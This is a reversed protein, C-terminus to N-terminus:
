YVPRPTPNTARGPRGPPPNTNPLDMTRDMAVEPTTPTRGELRARRGIM